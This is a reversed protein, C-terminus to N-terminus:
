DYQNYKEIKERVKTILISLKLDFEKFLETDPYVRTIFPKMGEAFSM